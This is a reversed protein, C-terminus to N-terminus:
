LSFHVVGAKHLFVTLQRKAEDLSAYPGHEVEHRTLFFWAGNRMFFRKRRSSAAIREIDDLITAQTSM